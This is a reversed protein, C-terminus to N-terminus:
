QAVLKGVALNFPVPKSKEVMEFTATWDFAGIDEAVYKAKTVTLPIVEGAKLGAAPDLRLAIRALPVGSEKATARRDKQFVGVTLLNGPKVGGALLTPELPNPEPDNPQTNKLEYVGADEIPFGSSHFALFRVAPPASLNFGVGRTMLGAPGVLDLVLRTPTSGPNKVLRWGTTQPDTYGLTTAQSTSASSGGGCGAASAALLVVALLSTIRRSLASPHATPRRM